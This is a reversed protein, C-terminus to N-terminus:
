VHPTVFHPLLMLPDVMPVHVLLEHIGYYILLCPTQFDIPVMSDISEDM